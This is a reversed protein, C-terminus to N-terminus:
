RNWSGWVNRFFDERLELNGIDRNKKRKKEELNIKLFSKLTKVQESSGSWLRAERYRDGTVWSLM